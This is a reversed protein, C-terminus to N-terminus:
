QNRLDRYNSEYVRRYKKVHRRLRRFDEATPEYAAALYNQLWDPADLEGQKRAALAARPFIDRNHEALRVVTDIKHKSSQDFIRGVAILAATQIGGWVTNWFLPHQDFMRFVTKNGKAVEHMGLWACFFQVATEAETRFIELEKIFSQETPTM